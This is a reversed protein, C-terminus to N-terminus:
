LSQRLGLLPVQIQTPTLGKAQILVTFNGLGRPDLLLHLNQRRGLRQNIDGLPAAPDGLAALREGLGLAMLFLAQPSQGLNVLSLKSGHRELATFNVHATIDQRGVQYYPDNHHQHRHYCQLTGQHRYPSYYSHAPYGYDITILFGQRLRGAVARLWDLAGLNIETRYGEPYPPTTLNIGLETLYAQLHPTSPPQLVEQCTDDAAVTVFVEWLQGASWVVQHVPFADVLENSFCCGVLSEPAIEEWTCWIVPLGRKRQVKVMAASREIIRYELAQYFRPDAQALYSLLEAALVGQGAGMELLTFPEPYELIEWMQRLQKALLQAFDPGLHPATIFDGRTGIQEAQTAYYGCTPHYLALDMFQVFPVPGCAQIKAKIEQQLKVHPM